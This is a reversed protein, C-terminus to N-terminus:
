MTIDNSRVEVAEKLEPLAEPDVQMGDGVAKKKGSHGESNDYTVMMVVCAHWVLSGKKASKKGSRGRASPLPTNPNHVPMWKKVIGHTLLTCTRVVLEKDTSCNVGCHVGYYVM